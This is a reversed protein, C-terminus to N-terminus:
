DASGNPRLIRRRPRDVVLQDLSSQVASLNTSLSRRLSDNDRLSQPPVGQMLSECRQILDDLQGNSRINLERFKTFFESMNTVASDRFIKPKGPVGFNKGYKAPKDTLLEAYAWNFMARARRIHGAITAHVATKGDSKTSFVRKVKAFDSPVLSEVVKQAGVTGVFITCTELLDNYHRVSISDDDDAPLRAREDQRELFRNALEKVSLKSSDSITPFFGNARISDIESYYRKLAGELDNWPGFSFVKGGIKKLWSGGGSPTLPCNTPKAPKQRLVTSRKSHSMLLLGGIFLKIVAAL